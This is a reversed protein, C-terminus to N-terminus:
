LSEGRYKKYEPNLIGPVTGEELYCEIRDVAQEMMQQFTEFTASATHATLAVNDLDLFQYGLPKDSGTENEFVDLGAALIRGDRLAEALDDSHVLSGRSTNVVIAQPKMLAITEKNIIWKTEPLLPLHVSIIDSEKLLQEESVYAVGYKGAFERDEVMDYALIRCNFGQLLRVVSKAINGCGLLGVTKKMVSNAMISQVQCRRAKMMEQQYSLKRAAALMLAVAQEAVADANCGPLNVVAVGAETAADLDVNDLGIGYRVLLRLSGKCGAFAQKGWRENAAIVFDYGKCAQVVVKEDQSNGVANKKWVADVGLAEMRKIGETYDQKMDPVTIVCTKRTM